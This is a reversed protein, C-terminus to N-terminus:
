ALVRAVDVMAKKLGLQKDSVGLARGVMQSLYLIPM